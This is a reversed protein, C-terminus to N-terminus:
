MSKGIGNVTAPYIIKSLIEMVNYFYCILYLVDRDSEETWLVNEPFDDMIKWTFILTKDFIQIWNIFNPGFNYKQLTKFYFFFINHFWRFALNMRRGYKWLIRTLRANNGIFRGNVNGTQNQNITSNMVRQLRKAFFFFAIIKYDVNTLGIPM